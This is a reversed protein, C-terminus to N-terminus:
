RLRHHQGQGELRHDQGVEHRRGRRHGGQRRGDRPLLPHRGPDPRSGGRPHRQGPRVRAVPVLHPIQGQHARRRRRLALGPHRVQLQDPHQAPLGSGPQHRRERPRVRRRVQPFWDTIEKGPAGGLDPPAWRVPFCRKTNTAPTPTAGAVCDKPLYNVDITGKTETYITKMRYWRMPRLGNSLATDVRNDMPVGVLNINPVPTAVNKKDWGGHAIASLWMGKRTGDGPDPWSHTLKWREVDRYAAPTVATNWVRTTITSLRRKTWFTPGFNSCSTTSICEQDLPTDQWNANNTCTVLCRDATAFAVSMPATAYGSAAVQGYDIRTVNGGRVYSQVDTHTLNRAYKNTEQSYWFSEANGNTDVIWDLNWRWAQVCFSDKYATKNCPEGSQNGAVPVTFVSNTEPSTAVYGPLRNKGFYYKTGNTATVVWYEGLAGAAEGADGKDGNVAGYFREIRVGDDSRTHWRKETANYILEGGGVGDLSLTANDTGWCEDGTEATNNGNRAPDDNDESCPVYRREIFGPEYDFGEGVWSPQNNTVATRGDVAQSSYELSLGPAPGGLSPPVRMPYSWAFAGSASGANWTASSAISTAGFDGSDGAASAALAVLSTATATLPVDATVATGDNTSALPTPGCAAAEPTTLACPPLSVLRLRDSWDAGYASAFDTYDIKVPVSGAATGGVRVVLDQRAKAVASRDLVEVSVRNPTEGRSVGVSVPTSGARTFTKTAAAKATIGAPVAAVDVTSVGPTPWVPRKAPSTPMAAVQVPKPKAPNGGISQGVQPKPPSPKAPAANAPTAQLLSTALLITSAISLGRHVRRKM